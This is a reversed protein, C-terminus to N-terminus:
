GDHPQALDQASAIESYEENIVDNVKMSALNENEALSDFILRDISLVPLGFKLGVKNAAWVYDPLLIQQLYQLILPSCNGSSPSGHFILIACDRINNETMTTTPPKADQIAEDVPNRAKLSPHVDLKKTNSWIM